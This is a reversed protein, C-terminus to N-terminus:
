LISAHDRNMRVIFVMKHISDGRDDRWKIGIHIKNNHLMLTEDVTVVFRFTEIGHIKRIPFEFTSVRRVALRNIGNLTSRRYMVFPIRKLISLINSLFFNMFGNQIRIFVLVEANKNWCMWSRLEDIETQAEAFFIRCRIMWRNRFFVYFDFWYM